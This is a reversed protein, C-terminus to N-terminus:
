ITMYHEGETVLESALNNAVANNQLTTILIYLWPFSEEKKEKIIHFELEGYYTGAPVSYSGDEDQDFM